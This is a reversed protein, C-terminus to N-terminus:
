KALRAAAEKAISLDAYDEVNLDQKLLNFDRMAKWNNQLPKLEPLADLSRYNDDKTFIYRRLVPEPMKSQESVVKIAEDRNAPDYYWRVVRIFDEM